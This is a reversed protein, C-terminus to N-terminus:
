LWRVAVRGTVGPVRNAQFLFYLACVTLAMFTGAFMVDSFFHGGQAMRMLGAVTGFAIGAGILTRARGPFLAAAAFFLVFISSAEGSVFSCNRDCNAAPTLPATYPKSGGFEVIQSPRARGWNDKLILNAVIGPGIALCLAAFAWQAANLQLWNRTQTLVLGLLAAAAALVYAAMFTNRVLSVLFSDHGAFRRGGVYLAEAIALDITPWWTFLIAFSVLAVSAGVAFQLMIAAHSAAPAGTDDQM